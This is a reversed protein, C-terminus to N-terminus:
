EVILLLGRLAESHRDADNQLFDAPAHFETSATVHGTYNQTADSVAQKLRKM